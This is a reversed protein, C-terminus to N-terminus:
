DANLAARAHPTASLCRHSAAPTSGTVLPPLPLPLPPLTLRDAHRLPRTRSKLSPMLAGGHSPFSVYPRPNTNWRLVLATHNFCGPKDRAGQRQLAEENKFGSCVIVAGPCFQVNCSFASVVVTLWVWASKNRITSSGQSHRHNYRVRVVLIRLM